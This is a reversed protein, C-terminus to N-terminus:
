RSSRADSRENCYLGHGTRAFDITLAGKPGTLNLFSMGSAIGGDAMGASLTGKVTRQRYPRDTVARFRFGDLRKAPVRFGYTLADLKKGHYAYRRFRVALEALDPTAAIERRYDLLDSSARYVNVARGGPVDCAKWGDAQALADPEGLFDGVVLPVGEWRLRLERSPEVEFASLVPAICFLALVVAVFPKRM